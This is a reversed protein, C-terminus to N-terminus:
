SRSSREGVTVRVTQGAAGRLVLLDLSHGVREPGLLGLLDEPSALPTGAAEVMIDGVLLGARDAPSDAAVGVVVLGQERAPTGRQRAPLRVPQSTVGLFGRRIGGHQEIASITSSVATGPVALAAGRLLGATAIGAVYGDGGVLASGSFGPYPSANLSLVEDIKTGDRTQLPGAVSGIASLRISLHGRWSRGAVLVLEGPRAVDAALSMPPADLGSVKLLVLDLGRAHGLPAAQLEAGDHTVVSLGEEWEVSHSTTVVREPGIVVGSAPGRPRGRVQVISRAAAAAADALERSLRGFLSSTNTV